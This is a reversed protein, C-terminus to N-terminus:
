GMSFTTCFKHLKLLINVIRDQLPDSKSKVTFGIAHIDHLDLFYQSIRLYRGHRTRRGIHEPDNVEPAIDHRDARRDHLVIPAAVATSNVDVTAPVEPPTSPQSPKRFLLAATLGAALVLIVLTTKGTGSM